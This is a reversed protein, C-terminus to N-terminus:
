QPDHICQQLDPIRHKKVWAHTWIWSGSLNKEANRRLQSSLLFIKTYFISLNKTVQSVIKKQVLKFIFYNVIKHFKHSCFCSVKGRRKQQPQQHQQQIRFGPNPIRFGLDPIRSGPDPISFVLIWSVSYVEQIGLM